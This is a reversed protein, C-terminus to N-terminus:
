GAEASGDDGVETIARIFMEQVWGLWHLVAIGPAAPDAPDLEAEMTEETVDLRTGLALRLDTLVTLWADVESRPVNTDVEAPEELVSLVSRLADLKAKKLEDGILDSYAQADKPDEYASPFLRDVVPDDITPSRGLLEEMQAALDRLLGAEAADLSLAVSGASPEISAM